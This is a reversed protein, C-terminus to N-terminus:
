RGDLLFLDVFPDVEVIRVEVTPAVEEFAEAIASISEDGVSGAGANLFVVLRHVDM